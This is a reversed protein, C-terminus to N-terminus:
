KANRAKRCAKAFATFWAALEQKSNCRAATGNFRWGGMFENYLNSFYSM